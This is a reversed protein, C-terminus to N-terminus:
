NRPLRTPCPSPLHIFISDSLMKSHLNLFSSVTSFMNAQREEVEQKLTTLLILSCLSLSEITPFPLGDGWEVVM